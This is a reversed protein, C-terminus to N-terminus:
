DFDLLLIVAPPQCFDGVEGADEGVAARLLSRECPDLSEGQPDEGLPEFM